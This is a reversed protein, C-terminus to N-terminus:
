SQLQIAVPDTDTPRLIRRALQCLCIYSYTLGRRFGLRTFYIDDRCGNDPALDGLAGEYILRPALADNLQAITRYGTGLVACAFGLCTYAGPVRASLGVTATVLEFYNYVLGSDPKGALAFLKKLRAYRSETLELAFIRVDVREGKALFREVPERIFGGYLPTDHFFRAFSVWNRFDEDLTLSVHNYPYRSVCRIVKGIGTDTRSIMVYLKKSM